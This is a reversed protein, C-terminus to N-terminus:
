FVHVESQAEALKCNNPPPKKSVLQRRPPLLV